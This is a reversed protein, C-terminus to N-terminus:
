STGEQRTFTLLDGPQCDLVDCIKVLTDFRIGKIKGTKIMSMNQESTGIAQALDKLRMKRRALMIDLTMIIKM